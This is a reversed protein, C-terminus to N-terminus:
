EVFIDDPKNGRVAGTWGAEYVIAGGGYRDFVYIGGGHESAVNLTVSSSGAFSVLGEQNFIGGGDRAHNQALTSDALTLTAQGENIIGGGWDALNGSLTTRTLVLSGAGSNFIGGGYSSINGSVVSDTLAMSGQQENVMGGGRFGTNATVTTNDLTISGVGECCSNHAPEDENAIGGGDYATNGSVTSDTLSLSGGANVVGGGEPAHGNVGTGWLYGGTITLGVVDVHLRRPRHVRGNLRASRYVTIVSGPRQSSNQGNLTAPGSESSSEGEITLSKDIETDGYCTGSVRLTARAKAADVAEQLSGYTKGTHGNTVLCAPAAAAANPAALALALAGIALATARSKRNLLKEKILAPFAIAAVFCVRHRRL